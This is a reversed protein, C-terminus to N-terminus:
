RTSTDAKIVRTLARGDAPFTLQVADRGKLAVPTAGDPALTMDLMNATIQSGPAGSQGAMQLVADGVILAHELTEGDAGYKLDM